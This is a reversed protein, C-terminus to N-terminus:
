LQTSFLMSYQGKKQLFIYIYLYTLPLHKMDKWTSRINSITKNFYYEHYVSSYEQSIPQMNWSCYSVYYQNTQFNFVTTHGQCVSAQVFQGVHLLHYKWQFLFTIKFLNGDNAAYHQWFPSMKMETNFYMKYKQYVNNQNAWSFNTLM